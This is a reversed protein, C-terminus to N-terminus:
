DMKGKEPLNKNLVLDNRAKILCDIFDNRKINNKERYAITDQFVLVFFETAKAPFNTVRVIKLLKPWTMICVDRLLFRLSPQFLTIGYTHLESNGKDDPWTDLGFFCIGIVNVAFKSAINRIDISNSTKHKRYINKMMEDSCGKISDYTQKLKGSTFAPSLKNRMTKWQPNENWFLSDTIPNVSYDTFVGRDPFYSFDKILINNILEPDRIMLYPTRMQYFGGYKRGALEYYIKKYLEALNEIGFAVLMYNGFLPIPHMFPVNLKKWKDFTSNYDYYLFTLLLLGLIFLSVWFYNFILVLFNFLM